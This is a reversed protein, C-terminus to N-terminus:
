ADGARGRGSIAALSRFLDIHGEVMADTTRGVVAARAAERLAAGRSGDLSAVRNLASAISVDNREVFFGTVGDRVFDTVGSVRTALVPCGSAAAEHAVLSFTEYASPLVLADVSRYVVPLDERPGTFSVRDAVGLTAAETLFPRLEGRGVVTLAWDPAHVLARIAHILGKPEWGGGVFAALWPRGSHDLSARVATDAPGPRFADVDIGNPIVTPKAARPYHRRLDEALGSSVCTTARHHDPQLQWREAAIFQRQAIHQNLRYPLSAARLRRAAGAAEAAAHLFHLAVIDARIPALCGIVQVLGFRDQAVARAAQVAFLPFAATFPRVPGGIRVHEIMDLSPVECTRSVVRVSVGRAVLGEVLGVLQREMGSVSGIDHAVITIKLVDRVEVGHATSVQDM